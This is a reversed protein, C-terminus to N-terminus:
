YYTAVYYRKDKTKKVPAFLGGAIYNVWNQEPFDFGAEQLTVANDGSNAGVARLKSAIRQQMESLTKSAEEM